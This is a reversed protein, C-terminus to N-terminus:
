ENDDDEATFAAIPHGLASAAAAKSWQPTGRWYQEAIGYRPQGLYQHRLRAHINKPLGMINAPHNKIWNLWNKLRGNQTILWHHGELEKPLLNHKVMEDRVAGWKAKAASEGIAGKIAYLGGKEIAKGISGGLFLDSAALAGNLAAGAYDGNQFDAVAERGSGWVPILSEWFGPHGISNQQGTKAQDALTASSAGNLPTGTGSPPTPSSRIDRGYEEHAQAKAM